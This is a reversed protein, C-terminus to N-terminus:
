DFLGFGMDDETDDVLCLDKVADLDLASKIEEWSWTKKIKFQFVYVQYDGNNYCHDGGNYTVGSENEIYILEGNFNPDLQEKIYYQIFNSEALEKNEDVFSVKITQEESISINGDIQELHIHKSTHRRYESINHCTKLWSSSKYSIVLIM